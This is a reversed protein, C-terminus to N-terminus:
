SHHAARVFLFPVQLLFYEMIHGLIQDIDAIEGEHERSKRLVSSQYQGGMIDGVRIVPYGHDFCQNKSFDNHNSISEVETATLVLTGQDIGSKKPSDNESEKDTGEGEDLMHDLSKPIPHPERSTENVKKPSSIFQKGPTQDNEHGKNGEEGEPLQPPNQSLAFHPSENELFSGVQSDLFRTLSRFYCLMSAAHLLDPEDLRGPRSKLYGDNGSTRTILSTILNFLLSDMLVCFDQCFSLLAKSLAVDIASSFL